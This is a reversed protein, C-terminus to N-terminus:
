MPFGMRVHNKFTNKLAPTLSAWLPKRANEGSASWLIRRREEPMSNAESITISATLLPSLISSTGMVYRLRMPSELSFENESPHLCRFNM